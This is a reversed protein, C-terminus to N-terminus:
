WALQQGDYQYFAGNHEESLKFLLEIMGTVSTDVDLPAGPGGLDTKVWGPHISTVIIGDKKLDISLTKTAMNLAAQM